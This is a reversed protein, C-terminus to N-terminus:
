FPLPWAASQSPRHWRANPRNPKAAPDDKYNLAAELAPDRGSLYDAFSLPAPLDPLMWVRTDRPDSFQWYLTSVMPHLHTLPLEMQKADGWLNPASGTPEGAFIAQTWREADAAFNQAASFTQRGTLVFLHGPRNIGAAAIMGLILPQNKYNDGGGNHRIDIILKDVKNGAVFEFLRAAFAAVTETDGDSCQNYVAYVANASKLYTFDFPIDKGHLPTPQAIHAEDRARVWDPQAATDVDVALPTVAFDTRKGGKEVTFIAPAASDRATVHMGSLYGPRRLVFPFWNLVWMSNEHDWYALTTQFVDAIPHGSVAVLKGGVAAAHAKDAGIVYVGDAFAQTLIPYRTDFGPGADPQPYFTTHGDGVLALLGYLGMVYEPWTDNAIGARFKAAYADMEAAATRHYLAPHTAKMAAYLTDFDAIWDQTKMSPADGARAPLACLLAMSLVFAFRKM